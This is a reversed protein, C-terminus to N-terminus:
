LSLGLLKQVAAKFETNDFSAQMLKENYGSVMDVPNRGLRSAVQLLGIVQDMTQNSIQQTSNAANDTVSHRPSTCSDPRMAVSADEDGRTSTNSVDQNTTQRKNKKSRKKRKKPFGDGASVNGDVVSSECPVISNSLAAPAMCTPETSCLVDVNQAAGILLHIYIYIYM